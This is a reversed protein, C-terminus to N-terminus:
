IAPQKNNVPNSQQMISSCHTSKSPNPPEALTAKFKKSDVECLPYHSYWLAKLQARCWCTLIKVFWWPYMKRKKEKVKHHKQKMLYLVFLSLHLLSFSSSMQYLNCVVRVWLPARALWVRIWRVKQICCIKESWNKSYYIILLCQLPLKLYRQIALTEFVWYEESTSISCM